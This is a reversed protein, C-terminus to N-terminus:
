YWLTIILNPETKKAQIEGTVVNTRKIVIDPNNRLWEIIQNDLFEVAGIHLKAFFTKVGTIRDGSVAKGQRQATPKVPHESAEVPQSNPPSPQSETTKSGLTLPVHSVDSQESEDDDYDDFPIPGENSESPPPINRVDFDSM